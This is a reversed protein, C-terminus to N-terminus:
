DKRGTSCGNEMEDGFFVFADAVSGRRLSNWVEPTVEQREGRIFAAGDDTRIRPFPGRYLVTLSGQAISDAPRYADIKVERLSVGDIVFWPKETFKTLEVNVFGAARMRGVVDRYDPVSQVLAALGPLSLQGSLAQQSMLGHTSLRGGPKLARWTQELLAGTDISAEANFTGTLLVEDLSGDEAPIRDPFPSSLYHEWTRPAEVPAPRAAMGSISQRVTEPVVHEDIHYIEWFNGDPDRLWLKDQRAYGCVTGTQDTTCTGAAELRTRFQELQTRDSVRLGLHSLSGGAGPPRPVLSFVVPPDVVDFKAYDHHQEAPFQNFLVRYFAITEAFRGVNLSLHFRVPELLDSDAAVAAQNQLVVLETM